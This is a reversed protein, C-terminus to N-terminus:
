KGGLARFRKWAKTAKIKSWTVGRKHWALILARAARKSLPPKKPQQVAPFFWNAVLSEDLNRGLAQNTWQTADAHDYFGFGCRPGCIHAAGNYHATWLRYKGRPVGHLELYRILSQANSVQIYICPRSNPKLQLQRKVWGPAEEITADGREVDLCDADRTVNVAISLKHAHPFESVLKWYTPWAGNVYGAVAEADLPIQTVNVSDFMKISM